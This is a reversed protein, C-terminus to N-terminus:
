LVDEWKLEKTILGKKVRKSYWDMGFPNTEIWQRLKRKHIIYCGRLKTCPFGPLSMLVNTVYEQSCGLFKACQSSTFPRYKAYDPLKSLIWDNYEQRVPSLEKM